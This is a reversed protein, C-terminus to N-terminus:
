VNSTPPPPFRALMVPLNELPVERIWGQMAGDGIVMLSYTSRLLLDKLAERIDSRNTRVFQFRIQAATMRQQILESVAAPLEATCLVDVEMNNNQNHDALLLTMEFAVFEEPRNSMYPLLVRDVRLIQQYYSSFIPSPFIRLVKENPEVQIDSREFNTEPFLVMSLPFTCSRLVDMQDSNGHM